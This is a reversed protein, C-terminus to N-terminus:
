NYAMILLQGLFIAWVDQYDVNTHRAVGRKCRVNIALFPCLLTAPIQGGQSGALILVAGHPDLCSAQSHHLILVCGRPSPSDLNQHRKLSISPNRAPM